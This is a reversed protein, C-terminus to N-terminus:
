CMEILMGLESCNPKDRREDQPTDHKILSWQPGKSPGEDRAVM